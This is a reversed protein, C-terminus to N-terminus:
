MVRRNRQDIADRIARSDCHQYIRTTKFDEHGMVDAVAFVNGTAEVAYTAFAHRAGYLTLSEPLRALRRAARFQKAVTTLHPAASTRSPFVWECPKSAAFPRGRRTPKATSQNYLRTKLVETARESIPIWRRSKQTKGFPNFYVRKEWHVHEWRMRFVEEPRLGVDRVLILVDRLPQAAVQLLLAEADDDIIGERRTEKKLTIKPRQHLYHLKV